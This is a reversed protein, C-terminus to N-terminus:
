PTPCPQSASTLTTTNPYSFAGGISMTNTAPRSFWPLLAVTQPHYTFGDITVPFAPNPLNEVPDGVELLNSCEGSGSPDAWEPVINNIFPDNMWEAIEHSISIVDAIQNNVFIGEDAWTAFAFTQVPVFNGQGSGTEFATHFGLTCCNNPTGDYFLANHTLAIALANVNLPELQIITNLQSLMFNFDILAFIAGTASSQLVISSGFPVEVQVPTLMQPRLLISAWGPRAVHFFEAKQIADGLQTFGTTYPAPEFNPSNLFTPTIPDVNIVINNGNQDVFEDFFFSIPILQTNFLTVGGQAPNNGVMTYPFVADQYTFASTFNRVSVIRQQQMAAKGSSTMKNMAAYGVKAGQGELYGPSVVQPARPQRGIQAHTVGSHILPLSLVLSLSVFLLVRNM